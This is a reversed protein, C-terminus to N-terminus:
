IKPKAKKTSFKRVKKERIQQRHNEQAAATGMPSSSAINFVPTATSDNLAKYTICILRFIALKIQPLSTAQAGLDWPTM